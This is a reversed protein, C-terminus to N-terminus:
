ELFDAIEHEGSTLSAVLEVTSEFRDTRPWPPRENRSHTLHVRWWAEPSRVVIDDCHGACRAVVDVDLGFLHPSSFQERQRAPLSLVGHVTVLDDVGRWDTAAEGLHVWASWRVSETLDLPRPWEALDERVCVLGLGCLRVGEYLYLVDGVALDAWYEPYMPQIAAFTMDGPAVPSDRWCLVPAGAQGRPHDIAAFGWNPRYQYWSPDLPRSRGGADTTRLTLEIGLVVTPGSM